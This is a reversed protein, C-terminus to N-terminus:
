AAPERPEAEADLTDVDALETAGYEEQLRVLVAVGAAAYALLVAVGAILAAQPAALAALAAIAGLLGLLVGIVRKSFSVSTWALSAGGAFLAIGAALGLRLLLLAPTM